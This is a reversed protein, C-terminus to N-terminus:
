SGFGLARLRLGWFRATAFSFGMLPGAVILGITGQMIWHSPKRRVGSALALVVVPGLYLWRPVFLLVTVGGGTRASGM